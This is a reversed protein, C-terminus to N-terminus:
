LDLILSPLFYPTRILTSMPPLEFTHGPVVYTSVWERLSLAISSLLSRLPVPMPKGKNRKWSKMLAEIQNGQQTLSQLNGKKEGRLRKKEKRAMKRNIEPEEPLEGFAKHPQTQNVFSFEPDLEDGFEIKDSDVSCDSDDSFEDM